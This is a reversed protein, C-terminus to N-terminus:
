TKQLSQLYLSLDFKPIFWLDKHSGAKVSPNCDKCVFRVIRSERPRRLLGPSCLYVLGWYSYKKGDNSFATASFLNKLLIKFSGLIYCLLFVTMGLDEDVAIIM